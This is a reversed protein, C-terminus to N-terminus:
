RARAGSQRHAHWCAESQAASALAAESDVLCFANILPNVRDTRALVAQTVEVPSTEGRAYMDLLTHAPLQTLDLSM